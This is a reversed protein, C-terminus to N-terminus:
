TLSTGPAPHVTGPRLKAGLAFETAQHQRILRHSAQIIEPISFVFGDDAPDYQTGENKCYQLRRAARALDMDRLHRREAQIFTLREVTKQFQRSLRQGHLGLMALLKHADVIDFNSGSRPDSARNLLEAELLPIRNLRWSTDALEQTLQQETPTAPKYEDRFQQCHKKFTELDETVLLATRSTLGHTVANRSANIKGQATRPGTSHRANARNAAARRGPQPDVYVIEIPTTPTPIPSTM